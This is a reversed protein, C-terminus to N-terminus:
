RGPASTVGLGSIEQQSSLVDRRSGLRSCSLSRRNNLLSVYPLHVRDVRYKGRGRKTGEPPSGGGRWNTRSRRAHRTLRSVLSLPKWWIEYREQYGQVWEIGEFISRWSGPSFISSSM